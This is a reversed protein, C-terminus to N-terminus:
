ESCGDFEISARELLPEMMDLPPHGLSEHRRGTRVRQRASRRRLDPAVPDEFGQPVNDLGGYAYRFAGVKDDVELPGTRAALSPVAVSHTAGQLSREDQPDAPPQPRNWSNSSDHQTTPSAARTAPTTLPSSRRGPEHRWTASFPQTSAGTSARSPMGLPCTVGPQRGLRRSSSASAPQPRRLPWRPPLSRTSTRPSTPESTRRTSPPSATRTSSSTAPASAWSRRARTPYSRRQLCWAPSTPAAPPPTRSSSGGTPTGSSSRRARPRTSPPECPRWMM